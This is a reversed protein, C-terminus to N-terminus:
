LVTDIVLEVASSGVQVPASLAGTLDGPQKTMANQDGDIRASLSLNGQFPTGKMMVNADSLEFAMPFTGLELKASALPPGKDIGAPRAYLFLVGSSPLKDALEPALRISGSIKQGPGAAADRPTSRGSAGMGASGMGASGMGSMPGGAGGSVTKANRASAALEAPITQGFSPQEDLQGHDCSTM